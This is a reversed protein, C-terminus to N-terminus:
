AEQKLSDIVRAVAVRERKGFKGEIKSMYRGKAGGGRVRKGKDGEGGLDDIAAALKDKIEKALKDDKSQVLLLGGPTGDVASTLVAVRGESGELAMLGGAVLGLFEFDHTGRQYRHVWTVNDQGATEVLLRVLERRLDGNIAGADKRLEESRAAREAANSRNAQVAQAVSSLERSCSSLYRAARPGSTFFLKTASKSPTTSEPALSPPIVHLFSCLSLNPVQTGCCANRDTQDICCHRIM